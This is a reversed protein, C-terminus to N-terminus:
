GKGPGVCKCGLHEYTQPGDEVTTVNVTSPGPASGLPGVTSMM